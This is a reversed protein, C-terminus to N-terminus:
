KRPGLEVVVEHEGGDMPLVADAAHAAGDVTISKVAPGDAGAPNHIQV